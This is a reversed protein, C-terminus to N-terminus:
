QAAAVAITVVNSKVGGISLQMPVADGPAVGDPVQVNVQNLGVYGPALGSFIVNANVGGVTVTPKANTQALPNSPSPGGLGASPTTLGLGTCYISLYEGPKAPRSDATTGTPAALTATNAIVTSAQGTGQGNTTFLGPAYAEVRVPVTVSRTGQMVTLNLTIGSGNNPVQMNIQAPSVFFLPYANGSNNIVTTGALLNPLPPAGASVIAPALNVGYLSAISRPAVVNGGTPNAANVFAAASTQPAGGINFNKANSLGGGTTANFAMVTARGLVGVDDAAIQATVHGADVFTTDRAQGNWRIVTGPLLNAGAVNLVFGGSGADVTAPTITDITPQLSPSTLPIAIEWVSRGHSAARLVRSQRSMALSLVVVKPLGQGLSSWSNGGDTTIMVGADTGIYLTNPLDPDVLIDNVPISPLNGSIDVWNAGGNTTKYVHGQLDFSSPFGSVSAYATAANVPDVVIRTVVRLPLGVSRNTWTASAGKLAENTVLVKANNTAVYITNPDSPSVAVTNLTAVKNLNALDGTIASWRGGSDTSQWLRYTGFYLTQPNSPDMVFPSIFQTNDTSDIGYASSSWVASGSLNVTRELAVRQCAGFAIEPFSPDMATYGGDGCTVTTWSTKGDFAQTGNDQAGAISIGSKGDDMSMGPYLQTIALTDNLSTWNVNDVSSATSARTTVDTTGYIGGDNALYLKSGDPTYALYHFDVHIATNNPGAQALATWTRGGDLSRLIQVGGAWVVDPNVPSVRITNDYWLQTGWISTLGSNPLKTWTVGADTTKYVGFLTGSIPTSPGVQIYMTAPSSPALALEIRGMGTSPLAGNGTGNSAAWTLGADTSHYVGNRVNGGISGLTAWVSDGNSPDFAVSIGAAGPLTLTWTNGADSSQWIGRTSACVVVSSKTPHVAIAGIMDRLFPGVINTWTGGGNTSKLIGAGYYSDGAFNEEGTGVYITDPNQPDLAISGNALSPQDDTIPSWNAGGDISKWVGGEAAGIYLVKDDRPDIAIANIRGSNSGLLAPIQNTPKPGILTWNSSDTTLAFPVAGHAESRAQRRQARAAADIRQVQLIANRRAGLPISGNPYTRMNYFWELRDAQRDDAEQEKTPRDQATVLCVSVLLLGTLRLLM